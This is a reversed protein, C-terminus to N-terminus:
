WTRRSSISISSRVRRLQTRRNAAAPRAVVRVTATGAQDVASGAVAMRVLVAALSEGALDVPHRDQGHANGASWTPV